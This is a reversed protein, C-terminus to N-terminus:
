LPAFRSPFLLEGAVRCQTSMPACCSHTLGSSMARKESQRRWLRRRIYVSSKFMMSVTPELCGQAHRPLEALVVSM